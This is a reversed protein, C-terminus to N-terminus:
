KLPELRNLRVNRRAFFVGSVLSYGLYVICPRELDVGIFGNEAQHVTSRVEEAREGAEQGVRQVV